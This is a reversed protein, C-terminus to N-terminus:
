RIKSWTRGDAVVQGWGPPFNAKVVSGEGIHLEML